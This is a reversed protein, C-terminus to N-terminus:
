WRNSIATKKRTKKIQLLSSRLPQWQHPPCCHVGLTDNHGKVSINAIMRRSASCCCCCMVVSCCAADLLIHCCCTMSGKYSDKGIMIGCVPSTLRSVMCSIVSNWYVSVQIHQSELHAKVMTIFGYFGMYVYIFGTYPLQLFGMSEGPPWQSGLSLQAIAKFLFASDHSWHSAVQSPHRLDIELREFGVM